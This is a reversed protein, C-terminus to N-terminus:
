SSWRQVSRTDEKLLTPFTIYDLKGEDQRVVFAFICREHGSIRAVLRIYSRWAQSVNVEEKRHVYHTHRCISPGTVVSPVVL